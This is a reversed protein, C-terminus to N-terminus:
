YQGGCERASSTNSGSVGRSDVSDVVDVQVVRISEM